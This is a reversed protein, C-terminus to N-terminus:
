KVVKFTVRRVLRRAEASDPAVSNDIGKSIVNLRSPNIGAKVLINKINEARQLALSENIKSNGIEDAHGMIDITENPHNRLFTLIFDIGETSAETPQAKGSDFYTCVYGENVLRLVSDETAEKVAKDSSEKATKEVYRELEDPVGNRNLDIMRGRSDVAVGAVSNNEQDLYDPVGDKDTDNMKNEIEGIKKDLAEIKILNKDKIIAWDGHINNKGLSYTLGISGTVKKGSLNNSVDSYSGNWNIQQRINTQFSADIIVSMRPSFRFQPTLGVVFGGVNDTGQYNNSKADYTTKSTMRDYRIGVHALLGFRKTIEGLDLLRIANVVGDVSVGMVQMEFPLSENVSPSTSYSNPKLDEFHFGLRFGFKPSIMYRGAASFSNAQLKGFVTKRDSSFYGVAYPATGKAQGVSTEITWRNYKTSTSDQGNMSFTLLLLLTFSTIKKMKYYLLNFSDIIM